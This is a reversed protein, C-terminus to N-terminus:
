LFDGDEERLTPLKGEGHLLYRRTDLEGDTGNAFYHIVFDTVEHYQWLRRLYVNDLKVVKPVQELLFTWDDCYMDHMELYRLSQSHLSLFEVFERAYIGTSLVLEELQPWIATPCEFQTNVPLSLPNSILEPHLTSCRHHPYIVELRRLQSAARLLATAQQADARWTISSNPCAHPSLYYTLRLSHVHRLGEIMLNRRVDSRPFPPGPYDNVETMPLSHMLDIVLSRVQHMGSFNSRYGAAGLVYASALGEPYSSSSKFYSAPPSPFWQDSDPAVLITERLSKWVRVVDDFRFFPKCQDMVLERLKPLDSIYEHLMLRTTDTLWRDQEQRLEVFAKWGEDLRERDFTHGPLKDYLQEFFGYWEPNYSEGDGLPPAEGQQARWSPFDPKFDIAREWTARNWDRPLRDTRFTLCRVHQALRSKSLAALKDLSSNFQSLYFHEFVCPASARELVRSVLRVSKRDAPSCQQIILDVLETSLTEM